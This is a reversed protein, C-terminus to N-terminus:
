FSIYFSGTICIIHIYAKLVLQGLDFVFIYQGRESLADQVM